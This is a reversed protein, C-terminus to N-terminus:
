EDSYDPSDGYFMEFIQESVALVGQETPHQSRWLYMLDQPLQYGHSAYVLRAIDVVLERQTCDFQARIRM